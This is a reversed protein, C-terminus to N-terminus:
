TRARGSWYSRLGAVLIALSCAAWLGAWFWPTLGFSRAMFVADNDTATTTTLVLLTRLDILADLCFQVGLFAAVFDAAPKPLLHGTWLLGVCIVAGAILTFPDRSWLVTVVGIAIGILAIARRGSGTGRSILLCFVGFLTAGIYGAMFILAPIGGASETLGSGNPNVRLAVVQGGTVLTMVAHGAEHVYTVLLRLPYLILEAWPLYSIVVSIAASALLLRRPRSARSVGTRPSNPTAM